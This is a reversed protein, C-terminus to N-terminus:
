QMVVVCVSMAYDSVPDRKTEGFDGVHPRWWRVMRDVRILPEHQSWRAMSIDSVSVVDVRASSDIWWVENKDRRVWGGGM